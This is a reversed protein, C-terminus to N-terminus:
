VNKIVQQVPNFTERHEECPGYLKLALIHETTGYGKHQKFGYDPYEKDLEVMLADRTVKAIISAAMINEHTEDGNIIGQSPINIDPTEKGDVLVLDPKTELGLIAKKMALLSAQLINISDITKHDVSVVNWSICNKKIEIALSDRM